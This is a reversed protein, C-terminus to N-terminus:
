NVYLFKKFHYLILICVSEDVYKALLPLVLGATRAMNSLTVTCHIWLVLLFQGLYCIKGIQIILLLLLGFMNTEVASHLVFTSLFVNGRCGSDKFVILLVHLICKSKFMSVTGIVADSDNLWHLTCHFAKSDHLWKRLITLRPRFIYHVHIHDSCCSNDYHHIAIFYSM